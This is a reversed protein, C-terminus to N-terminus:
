WQGAAPDPGARQQLVGSILAVNKQEAKAYTAASLALRAAVQSADTVLNPVGIEWRSCFDSVTSALGDNGYSASAGGIDSVKNDQLEVTTGNIGEAAKVLASFNVMFGGSM